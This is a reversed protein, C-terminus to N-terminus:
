KQTKKLELLNKERMRRIEWVYHILDRRDEMKEEKLKRYQNMSEEIIKDRWQIVWYLDKVEPENKVKPIWYYFTPYVNVWNVLEILHPISYINGKTKNYSDNVLIHKNDLDYETSTRHWYTTPEYKNGSLEWDDSDINREHNGKYTIGLVNKRAYIKPIISDNYSIKVFNKEEWFYKRVANMGLASQWGSWIKYNCNESAYKVVELMLSDSFDIWEQYCYERTAWVLTCAYRTEDYNSQNFKGLKRDTIDIIDDETIWLYGIDWDTEIDHWLAWDVIHKEPIMIQQNNSLADM